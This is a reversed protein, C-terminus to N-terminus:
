DAINEGLTYRGNVHLGNIEFADFQAALRDALKEFADASEPTWWDTLNGEWDYKRGSDDFSHSMEHGITAGIGGFNQAADADPDFFPSQLIAAPFVIENRTPHFYANVTQPSMEWENSDIPQGVKAMELAVEYQQMALINHAHKGPEFSLDDVSTWIDPYGIKVAFADAKKLAKEKTSADMWPLERIKAKLSHGLYDVLEAMKEKSSSPFHRQVYLQGLVEDLSPSLSSVVEKWRPARETKGSLEQSYFDFDQNSIDTSLHPAMANLANWVLYNKVTELPLLHLTASLGAFFAPSQIDFAEPTSIGLGKFYAEWKINPALTKLEASTRKNYCKEPDQGDEKTMSLSALLTEVAMIDTAVKSMPIDFSLDSITLMDTIHTVYKHRIEAPRAGEELYYEREPLGLGGQFLCAINFGSNKADADVSIGFFPHIGSAHFEGLLTSIAEESTAAEIASIMEVLPMIGASDLTTQDMATKFFTALLQEQHGLEGEHEGLETLIARVQAISTEQLLGGFGWSSRDAPIDHFSLWQNNVYGYFDDGPRVTDDLSARSIAGEKISPADIRPRKHTRQPPLPSRTHPAQSLKSLIDAQVPSSPLRKYPM